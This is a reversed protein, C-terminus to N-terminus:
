FALLFNSSCLKFLFSKELWNRRHAIVVSWFKMMSSLMSVIRKNWYKFEYAFNDDIKIMFFWTIFRKISIFFDSNSCKDFFILIKDNPIKSRDIITLKIQRNNNKEYIQVSLIMFYHHFKFEHFIIICVNIKCFHHIFKKMLMIQLM